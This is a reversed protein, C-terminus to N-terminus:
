YLSAGLSAGWQYWIDGIKLKSIGQFIGLNFSFYFLVIKQLILLFKLLQTIKGLKLWLLCLFFM